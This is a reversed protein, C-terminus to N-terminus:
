YINTKDDISIEVCNTVNTCNNKDQGNCVTTNICNTSNELTKSYYCYNSLLSLPSSEIGRKFIKFTQFLQFLEKFKNNENVELYLFVISVVVLFLGFLM